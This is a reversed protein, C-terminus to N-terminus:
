ARLGSNLICCISSFPLFISGFNSKRSDSNNVMCFFQVHEEEQHIKDDSAGSILMAQM